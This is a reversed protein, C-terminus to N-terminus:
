FRCVDRSEQPRVFNTVKRSLGYFEEAIVFSTLPYSKVLGVKVVLYLGYIYIFFLAICNSPFFSEILYVLLLTNQFIQM